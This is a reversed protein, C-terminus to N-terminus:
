ELKEKRQYVFGLACKCIFVMFTTVSAIVLSLVLLLFGYVDLLRREYWTQNMGLPKLLSTDYKLVYETWYVANDLPDIPRDRFMESVQKMKKTYEPNYLLEEIANRLTSATLTDISLTQAAGIFELRDANYDQDGMIPITIMQVGYCLAEQSSPRGGQTIFGKVKPHALIDRQPFWSHLLVNKPTNKPISGTWRWFFKYNPFAEFAKFFSDRLSEPMASSVVASGLSVYIFGDTDEIFNALKEPLPKAKNEKGCWLGSYPVFLPPLSVPYEEVFHHNVFVISANREFDVIPPLNTINMKEEIVSHVMTGFEYQKYRWLYPSFTTWVRNFFSMESPKKHFFFDPISSTEPVIGFADFMYPLIVPYFLAHKSQFKHVLGYACEGLSADIFILDFHLDPRHLWEQVEPSEFFSSCFELTKAFGTMIWEDTKNNLRINIDFDAVFEALLPVMKSPIIEEIKPHSGIRKVVPFIYTVNHGIDALKSALPWISTRHSSTAVGHFFLINSGEVYTNAVVLSLSAILFLRFGASSM